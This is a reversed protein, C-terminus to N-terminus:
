QCGGQNENQKLLFRFEPEMEDITVTNEHYQYKHLKISSKLLQFKVKHCSTHTFRENNAKPDKIKQGACPLVHGLLLQRLYMSGYLQMVIYNLNSPSVSIVAVPTLLAATKSILWMVLCSLM